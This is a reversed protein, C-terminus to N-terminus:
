LTSGVARISHPHAFWSWIQRLAWSLRTCAIYHIFRKLGLNLITHVRHSCPRTCWPALSFLVSCCILGPLFASFNYGHPLKHTWSSALSISFDGETALICAAQKCKGWLPRCGGQINYTSTSLHCIPNHRIGRAPCGSYGVQMIVLNDALSVLGLLQWHTENESLVLRPKISLVQTCSWAAKLLAAKLRLCVVYSSIQRSNAKAHAQFDVLYQKGGVFM